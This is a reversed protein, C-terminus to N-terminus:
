AYRATSSTCSSPVGVVFVKSCTAESIPASSASSTPTSCKSLSILSVVTPVRLWCIVLWSRPKFPNSPFSFSMCLYRSCTTSPLSGMFWWITYWRCSMKLRTGSRMHSVKTLDMLTLVFSWISMMYAALKIRLIMARWLRMLLLIVLLSASFFSVEFFVVTSLFSSLDLASESLDALFYHDTNNVGEKLNIGRINVLNRHSQFKDSTLNFGHKFISQLM